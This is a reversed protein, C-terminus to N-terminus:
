NQGVRVSEDTSSLPELSIRVPPHTASLRLMTHRTFYAMLCAEAEAPSPRCCCGNDPSCDEFHDLSLELVASSSGCRTRCLRLTVSLSVIPDEMHLQLIPSPCLSPMPSCRPPSLSTCESSECSAVMRSQDQESLDRELLRRVHYEVAAALTDLEMGQDMANQSIPPASSSGRVAPVSTRGSPTIGGEERGFGMRERFSEEATLRSALQDLCSLEPILSCTKVPGTQACSEDMDDNNCPETEESGRFNGRLVVEIRCLPSFPKRTVEPIKNSDETPEAPLEQVHGQLPAPSRGQASAHRVLNDCHWRSHSSNPRQEVAAENIAASIDVEVCPHFGPPASQRGSTEGPPKPQLFRRRRNRLFAADRLPTAPLEPYPMQPPAISHVPTPSQHQRNPSNDCQRPSGAAKCRCRRESATSCENSSFRLRSSPRKTDRYFELQWVNLRKGEPSAALERHWDALSQFSGLPACDASALNARPAHCKAKRATRRGRNLVKELRSREGELEQIYLHREESLDQKQHLIELKRTIALHQFLAQEFPYRTLVQEFQQRTFVRM